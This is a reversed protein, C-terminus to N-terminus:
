ARRAAATFIATNFVNKKSKDFGHLHLIFIQFALNAKQLTEHVEYMCSRGFDQQLSPQIEATRHTRKHRFITPLGTFIKVRFKGSYQWM